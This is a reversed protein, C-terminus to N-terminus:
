LVNKKVIEIFKEREVPKQIVQEPKLDPLLTLMEEAIELCSAFLIRVDNKVARLKSYLQFGNLEPMRIDSIILDYTSPETEIYHRLAERSSSFTKVEFGALTLFNQLVLLDDMEDDVVLIKPIRTKKTIGEFACKKIGKLSGYLSEVSSIVRQQRGRSVLYTAYSYRGLGSYCSDFQSFLYNNIVPRLSRIVQYLDNGIIIRNPPAHSNIKSCFNVTSGFLDENDFYDLQVRTLKGYDASVRYSISPLRDDKLMNNITHGQEIQAFCCELVNEFATSNTSDVTDPFYSIVGDGVTKIVKAHYRKLTNVMTNIFIAYFNRVNKSNGITSVIQTSGVIDVVTVCYSEPKNTSSAQNNDIVKIRPSLRSTVSDNYFEDVRSTINASTM